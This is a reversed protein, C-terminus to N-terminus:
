APRGANTLCERAIAPKVGYRSALTDVTEAAVKEPRAFALFMELDRRRDAATRMKPLSVAPRPMRRM